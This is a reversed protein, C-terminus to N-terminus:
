RAPKGIRYAALKGDRSLVYLTDGDAVPPVLVGSGDVRVRAVFHGDSRDLWFLYGERDGVVVYREGFPVPATVGRYGLKKQRWLTAGTARDLAWVDGHDDTVFVQAGAVGLGAYSPVDREWLIRGSALNLAAVRGHYAAVYAVDGAVQPESDVDVMRQLESNGRPIAVTTQWLLTGDRLRVVELRGSALGCLAVGSLLVPSATGRLTLVPITNGVMWLRHGDEASLGFVNGDGSEVVVVGDAARPRSLVESSVQAHWKVKGSKSDLALVRGDRTGVLVLADGGGVGGSIPADTDTRWLRRGTRADYASVLGKYGAVYVHGGEVLPFLQLGLHDSGSGVDHSWIRDISVSAKFKPLPSPPITNDSGGFLSCASLLVGAALVLLVRRM